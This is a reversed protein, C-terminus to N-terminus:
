QAEIARVRMENIREEGGEANQYIYYGQVL